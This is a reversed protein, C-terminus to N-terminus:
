PIHFRSAVTIVIQAVDTARIVGLCVLVGLTIIMALGLVLPVAAPGVVIEATRGNKRKFQLLPHKQPLVM